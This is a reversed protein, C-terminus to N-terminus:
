SGLETWYQCTCVLLVSFSRKNAYCEHKIVLMSNLRVLRHLPFKLTINQKKTRLGIDVLM